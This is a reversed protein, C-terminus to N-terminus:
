IVGQERLRRIEAADLGLLEELVPETHEGMKPPPRRYTVPTGSYKIPNGILDVKGGQSGDYPMQVQMERHRVQPDAFVQDLTNVPGSPVGLASLGDVWEKQSKRRTLEDLIPYLEERNRVRSANTAFRPDDALEPRGAFECFRRFQGDNGVALIVYGDTCPMTKYPVINPHENGRRKPVEGSTLYNLGEYTLWAVQTDLLALDIHQGEGSQARSHLAALIASSAYMGCMIDAIGVGVKIPEDDPEGTLSMIGGMGQALYDYGARDSYPGTQGFGTISCYILRPAIDKVDDYALGYKKLGGAKFNEVLIDSERIMRRALEQGEQKSIDLTLSRKNRNSSLYYASTSSDSGDANKLYPPGWKRTDDGEGPREIKIVEAGLDGLLQTCTPGALIRTLDFVRLGALPATM